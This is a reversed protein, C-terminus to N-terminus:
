RKEAAFAYSGFTLLLLFAIIKMFPKVFKQCLYAFIIYKGIIFILESVYLISKTDLHTWIQAKARFLFDALASFKSLVIIQIIYYM